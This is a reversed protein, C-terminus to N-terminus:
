SPFVCQRENIRLENRRKLERKKVIGVNQIRPVFSAMQMPKLERTKLNNNDEQNFDMFQMTAKM